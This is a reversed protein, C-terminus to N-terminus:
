IAISYKDEHDDSSAGGDARLSPRLTPVFHGHSPMTQLEDCPVSPVVEIVLTM